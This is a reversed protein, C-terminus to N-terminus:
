SGQIVKKLQLESQKVMETYTTKFYEEYKEKIKEFNNETYLLLEENSLSHFYGLVKAETTYCAQVYTSVVSAMELVDDLGLNFLFEDNQCKFDVTTKIPARGNQGSLLSISSNISMQADRDTDVIKDRFRVGAEEKKKRCAKNSIGLINLLKTKTSDRYRERLELLLPVKCTDHVFGLTVFLSYDKIYTILNSPEIDKGNLLNLRDLQESDLQVEEYKFDSVSPDAKSYAIFDEVRDTFKTIRKGKQKYSVFHPLNVLKNSQRDYKLMLSFLM